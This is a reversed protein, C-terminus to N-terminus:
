IIVPFTPRIHVAPYNSNAFIIMRTPGTPITEVSGSIIYSPPGGLSEDLNLVVISTNKLRPSYSVGGWTGYYLGLAITSGSDFTNVGVYGDKFADNVDNPNHWVYEFSWSGANERRAYNDYFTSGGGGNDSIQLNSAVSGLVNGIGTEHTELILYNGHYRPNMTLSVELVGSGIDGIITETEDKVAFVEGFNAQNLAIISAHRTTLTNSGNEQIQLDYTTSSAVSSTFAAFYPSYISTNNSFWEGQELYTTTGDTISIGIADQTPSTSNVNLQLSGVVIWDGAPVTISAVSAYTASTTASPAATYDFYEDDKLELIVLSPNEVYVTGSAASYQLEITIPTGSAATLIGMCIHSYTTGADASSNSNQETNVESYTVGNTIDRIRFNFTTDASDHSIIARGFLAYTKGSTPTFTKDLLTQYSTSTVNTAGQFEGFSYVRNQRKTGEDLSLAIIYSSNAYSEVGNNQYQIAWSTSSGSALSRVGQYNYNIENATTQNERYTHDSYFPQGSGGFSSYRFNTTKLAEDNETLKSRYAVTTSLSSGRTGMLLLYEGTYSPTETLTLHTSFTTGSTTGETENTGSFVETFNSVKLAVLCRNQLTLTDASTQNAQLSYTTTSSPSVPVTALYPVVAVGTDNDNFWGRALMYPTSGDYLRVHDTDWTPAGADDHSAALSGILIWDGATLELSNLTSYSSGVTTSAATYSYLEDPELELIVLNSNKIFAGVGSTSTKYQIEFTIPTNSDATFAVVTSFDFDDAFYLDTTAYNGDDPEAHFEQYTINNTTDQLRWSIENNTEASTNVTALSALGSAFIAYSSGSTPTFTLTVHNFYTTGTSTSDQGERSKHYYTRAM